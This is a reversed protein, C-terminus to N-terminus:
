PDRPATTDDDDNMAPVPATDRAAVYPDRPDNHAIPVLDLEGRTTRICNESYDLMMRLKNKEARVDDQKIQRVRRHLANLDSRIHIPTLDEPNYSTAASSSSGMHVQTNTFLRRGTLPVLRGTGVTAAETEAVPIPPPLEGKEAKDPNIVEPNDIEDDIEMEEEEGDDKDVRDEEPEEDDDEDLWGNNNNPDQWGIWQPAFGAPAAPAQEHIPEKEEESEEEPDEEDDALYDNPQIPAPNPAIPAHEPAPAHENEPVNLDNNPPPLNAM